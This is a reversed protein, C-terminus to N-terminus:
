SAKILSQILLKIGFLFAIGAGAIVAVRTLEEDVQGTVICYALGVGVLLFAAAQIMLQKSGRPPTEKRKIKKEQVEQLNSFIKKNFYLFYGVYIVAAVAVYVVPQWKFFMGIILSLTIANVINTQLLRVFREEKQSVHYYADTTKIRLIKRNKQDEFLETQIGLIMTIIMGKWVAGPPLASMATQPEDGSYPSSRADTRGRWDCRM